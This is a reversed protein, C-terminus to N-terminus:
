WITVPCTESATTSGSGHNRAELLRKTVVYGSPKWHLWAVWATITKRQHLLPLDPNTERETMTFNTDQLSPTKYSVSQFYWCGVVNLSGGLLCPRRRLVCLCRRPVMNPRRRHRKVPTSFNQGFWQEIKNISIKLKPVIERRRRIVVLYGGLLWRTVM